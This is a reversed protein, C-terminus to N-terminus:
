GGLLGAQKLVPVFKAAEQPASWEARRSQALSRAAAAAIDAGGQDAARGLVRWAARWRPLTPNSAVAASIAALIAYSRDGREPLQFKDPDALVAEPDPLDAEKAWALFEMAVGHGVAGAIGIAVDEVAGGAQWVAALIRSAYDWTRPSPWAKGQQETSKPVQLLLGPRRHIFAAVMARAKGWQGADINPLAPPEGWYASFSAAWEVADVEWDLHVFRNALPPSLDWGGAAWEPPNAAAIIYVGKPLELDGVVRDLVVRLLAAQVAPPATSIEDLFLIGRGTSALRQAWAPPAFRVEQGVVVPLGLFDAPERISAVVVEVPVGLRRGLAMIGATKGVGPPGWVLVPVGTTMLHEIHNM